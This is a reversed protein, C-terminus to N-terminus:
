GNKGRLCPNLVVDLLREGCIDSFFRNGLSSIHKTSLYIALPDNQDINGELKVRRRLFGIDAYKILDKPYDPGFVFTTVEMVFDHYFRFTDEIKKVFFGGLSKLHDGITYPPTNTEIGCM